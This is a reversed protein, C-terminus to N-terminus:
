AVVPLNDPPELRTGRARGLASVRPIHPLHYVTALEATNLIFPKGYYPPAFYARRRYLNLFYGGSFGPVAKMLDSLPWAVRSEPNYSTFGNLETDSFRDFLADLSEAREDKWHERDAFYLARLGVDFSPKKLGAEVAAVVRQKSEPISKMNGADGVLSVIVDRADQHLPDSPEEWLRRREQQHPRVIWSIFLREGEGVGILSELFEILPDRPPDDSEHREYTKLPYPDPKALTYERVACRMSFPNWGTERAYDRVEDLDIDRYEARFRSEVAQRHDKPVRMFFRVVGDGVAIEFSWPVRVQGTVLAAFRTVEIRHYLSYFILEAARATKPTAEGPKLEFIVYPISAIYQSRVYTIWLPALLATLLLPLWVPAAAGIGGVIAAMAHPAFYIGLPPLLLLSLALIRFIIREPM